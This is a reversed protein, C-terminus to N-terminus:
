KYKKWIVRLKNEPFKEGLQEEKMKILDEQLQIVKEKLRRNEKYLERM